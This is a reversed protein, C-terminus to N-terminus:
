SLLHDLKQPTSCRKIGLNQIILPYTYSYVM